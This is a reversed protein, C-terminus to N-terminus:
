STRLEELAAPVEALLDAALLGASAGARARWREGARGHAFVAARACDFLSLGGLQASSISRGPATVPRRFFQAVLGAIVGTLVDGTGATALEAGGTTNVWVEAGDTVVTGAGKLVVVCGLRRALRVAADAREAGDVPDGEVGLSGALRRWEGPHPTLVAPAHFDRHAERIEALNNLADADFVIPVDRQVALRLTVSRAGDSVGLGPGVAICSSEDLLRDIVEAADHPVIMGGGDVALPVGTASPAIGIAADLVPAPMALRVLGAGARLAGLAALAPGGVMHAEGDARGGVVAATGFTGKHGRLDRAPLRVPIAGGGAAM